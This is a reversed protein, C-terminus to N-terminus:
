AQGVVEGLGFSKGRARNSRINNLRVTVHEGPKVAEALTNTVICIFHSPQGDPPKLLEVVLNLKGPSREKAISDYEKGVEPLEVNSSM